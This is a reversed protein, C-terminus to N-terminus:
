APSALLQTWRPRGAGPHLGIGVHRHRCDLIVARHASSNLWADLVAAPTPYGTGLTEGYASWRYGVAALRQVPGEGDPSTHAVYDRRAMDDSHKQAAVHLRAHPRVPPCGARDREANVRRVLEQIHRTSASVSASAAADPGAGHGAPAAPASVAAAVLSLATTVLTLTMVFRTRPGPRRRPRPTPHRPM